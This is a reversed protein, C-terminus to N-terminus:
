YTKSVKHWFWQLAKSNDKAEKLRQRWLRRQRHLFAASRSKHAVLRSLAYRDDAWQYKYSEDGGMFDFWSCRSSFCEEVLHKLHLKGLSVKPISQDFSPIWYYFSDGCVISYAASVIIGNLEIASLHLRFESLEADLLDRFFATNRDDDFISTGVKGAQRRTHFTTLAEFIRHAEPGASATIYRWAGYRMLNNQTTRIDQRLKKRSVASYYAEFDGTAAIRPNGCITEIESWEKRASFASAVIAAAPDVARLPALISRRWVCSNLAYNLAKIAATKREPLCLIGAYDAFMPDGLFSLTGHAIQLPVIARITTDEYDALVLLDGDRAFRSAWRITWDWSEFPNSSGSTAFLKRWDAELKELEEITHATARM